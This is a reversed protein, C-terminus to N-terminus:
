VNIETAFYFEGEDGGGVVVRLLMVIWDCVYRGEENQVICAGRQGWSCEMCPKHNLTLGPERLKEMCDSIAQVSFRSVGDSKVITKSIKEPGWGHLVHAKVQGVHFGILRQGPDLPKSQTTPM